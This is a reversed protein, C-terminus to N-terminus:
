PARPVFGPRTHLSTSDGGQMGKEDVGVGMAHYGNDVYLITATVASALPSCLFAAASAVENAELKKALPQNRETYDLMRDIFGIARAARSALPGASIANLRLQYARGLEYALVRMDSELAAKAANMGGGYGPVVRDGALFSLTLIAGGPNMLPAFHRSLSVLSYASASVAALYGARSTELLPKKVEPANALSHVLIDLRRGGLDAKLQAAVEEVTYNPNERYRKDERIEGPVDAPADYVADMPYIRFAMKGGNALVLSADFKGRELAMRFLNCAPPWTGVAIEAGAEALAKAIAFGFGQDDAVGAVFATKGKLDIALM